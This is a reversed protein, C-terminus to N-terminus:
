RGSHNHGQNTARKQNCVMVERIKTEVSISSLTNIGKVAMEISGSIATFPM